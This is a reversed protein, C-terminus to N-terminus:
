IKLKEKAKQLYSPKLAHCKYNPQELYSKEEYFQFTVILITRYLHQKVYYTIIKQQFM